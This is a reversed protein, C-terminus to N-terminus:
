IMEPAKINRNALLSDVSNARENKNNDKLLSECAVHFDIFSQKEPFHLDYTRWKTLLSM